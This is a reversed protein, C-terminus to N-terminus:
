CLACLLKRLGAGKSKGNLNFTLTTESEKASVLGAFVSTVIVAVGSSIFRLFNFILHAFYALNCTLSIFFKERLSLTM